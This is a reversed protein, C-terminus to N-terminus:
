TKRKQMLKELRQIKKVVTDLDDSVERLTIAENQCYTQIDNIYNYLFGFESPLDKLEAQNKKVMMIAVEIPYTAVKFRNVAYAAEEDSYVVVEQEKKVGEDIETLRSPSITM